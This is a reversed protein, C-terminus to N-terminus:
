PEGYNLGQVSEGEGTSIWFVTNLGYELIELHQSVSIMRTHESQQGDNCKFYGACSRERECRSVTLSYDKVAIAFLDSNESGVPGGTCVVAFEGVGDQGVSMGVVYNDPGIAIADDVEDTLGEITLCSHRVSDLVHCVHMVGYACAFAM